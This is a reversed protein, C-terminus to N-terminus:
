TVACIDKVDLDLLPRPCVPSPCRLSLRSCYGSALLPRTHPVSAGASGALIFLFSPSMSAKIQRSAMPM